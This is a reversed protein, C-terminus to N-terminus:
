AARTRVRVLSPRGSALLGANVPHFGDVDKEPRIADLVKQERIQKPLPLQVLIGDVARRREPSRAHADSRGREHRGCSM